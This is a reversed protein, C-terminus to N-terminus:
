SNLMHNFSIMRLKPKAMNSRQLDFINIDVTGGNLNQGRGESGVPALPNIWLSGLSM